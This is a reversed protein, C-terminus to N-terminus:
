AFAFLSTTVNILYNILSNTLIGLLVCFHPNFSTWTSLLAFLILKLYTNLPVRDQVKLRWAELAVILSQLSAYYLGMRTLINSYHQPFSKRSNTWFLAIPRTRSLEQFFKGWLLKGVVKLWIWSCSYSSKLFTMCIIGINRIIFNQLIQQSNNVVNHLICCVLVVQNLVSESSNLLM